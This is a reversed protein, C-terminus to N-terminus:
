GGGAASEPDRDPAGLAALLAERADEGAVRTWCDLPTRGESDTAKPDAGAALLLRVLPGSRPTAAAVHLPTRGREDRANPDAGHALLLSMTPAGRARGACAHLPTGGDRDRVNVDAGHAVLLDAWALGKEGATCQYLPTCGFMDKANPDAGAALLARALGLDDGLGAWHLATWGNCDPADIDAGLDALVPVTAADACHIAHRGMGTDVPQAIDAGGRVLTEITARNGSRVASALPSDYEGVANPDAGLALWLRVGWVHGLSASSELSPALAYALALLTVLVSPIATWGPLKVTRHWRSVPKESAGEDTAQMPIEGKV